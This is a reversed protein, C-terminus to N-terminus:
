LVRHEWNLILKSLEAIEKDNEGVDLDSLYHQVFEYESENKIGKKKVRNIKKNGSSLESLSIGREKIFTYFDSVTQKNKENLLPTIFDAMLGYEVKKLDVENLLIIRFKSMEYDFYNPTIINNKTNWYKCFETFVDFIYILREKKKSEM